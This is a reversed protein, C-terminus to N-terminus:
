VRCSAVYQLEAPIRDDQIKLGWGRTLNALNIFGCGAAFCVSEPSGKFNARAFQEWKDSAYVLANVFAAEDSRVIARLCEIYGVFQLDVDPAPTAVIEEAVDFRQQTIAKLMAGIYTSDVPSGMEKGYEVKYLDSFKRALAYDGAVHALLFFRFNGTSLNEIDIAVGAQYLEYLMLNTEAARSFATRAAVCNGRAIETFGVGEYTFALMGLVHAPNDCKNIEALKPELAQLEWQNDQMWVEIDKGAYMRKMSSGDEFCTVVM